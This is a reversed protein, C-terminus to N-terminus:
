GTLHSKQIDRSFLGLSYTIVAMWLLCCSQWYFWTKNFLSRTVKCSLRPSTEIFPWDIVTHARSPFSWFRLGFGPIANGQCVSKMVCTLPLAVDWVCLSDLMFARWGLAAPSSSGSQGRFYILNYSRVMIQKLSFAKSLVWSRFPCSSM